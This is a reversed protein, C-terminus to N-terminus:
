KFILRGTYTGQAVSPEGQPGTLEAPQFKAGMGPIANMFGLDTEPFDVTTTPFDTLKAGLQLYSAGESIVVLSKKGAELKLWHPDAYYGALQPQPLGKTNGAAIEHVGLIPGRQRNQWVPTPGRVLGRVSTVDALPRDFGVGHYLMAGDLNYGYDLTLAGDERLTWRVKQLGGANPAEFWAIPRGTEPDTGTGSSLTVPGTEPVAYRYAEYAIKVSAIKPTQRVGTLKTIRLGKITQPPFVYDQGDGMVREGEYVKEWHTGDPTIELRFGNRGDEVKVGLDVLVKNVLRPESFLYLGESTASVDQWDPTAKKTPDESSIALPRSLVLRPGNALSQVEGGRELSRLLGTQGDFRAKVRGVSLEVGEATRTAVPTGLRQGAKDGNHATATPWVWSLLAQGDKKATLRLADANAVNAPVTVNVIGSAHAAIDPGNVSGIALVTETGKADAMAFRVWEWEFQVQSLSTFDYLNRVKLAGTFGTDIVPTEIQVPAWIDRLTFYSPYKEHHPGLIGDPAYAAYVDIRGNEDTRAIGEDALNWVFGGAGRPSESIARWYDDMGSGAGGDYLGHLFETPLVLHPGSLRRMLDPYRPYHKTDIGGFLDWPHLLPRGQPDYFSFDVDLERNWGGENGNAWIIVSPHNGDREILARVLKRGNETDHAKQWGTLEDIVYLGLEDAAELFDKEPSYHAIRVANMNMAKMTRADDYAQARTVARGTEPRFSHRNAGKLLIRQGNLYLGDGERVEFTRFGIREEVRHLAVEGAYLTVELVYLNPTEASWLLPNDVQGSLRIRGIGGAPPRVSFSQGVAKGDRTKVQGVIHTVTKTILTLDATIKGDAKADVAVHTISEQPRAELWVPRYIGGFVWYDGHREAIDTAVNASAESVEVEITNAEGVKVLKTVDYSFRSFGGQHVPGASVGNVKVRTDTMVADFVLRISLDKWEAPITFSHTYVGTDGQRPGKDYGYQYHGFGQQQWNSPVAIKAKEGARQGGSITFDWPVADDPGNGSLM